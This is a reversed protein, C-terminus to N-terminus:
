KKQGNNSSCLRQLKEGTVAILTLAADPYKKICRLREKHTTQTDGICYIFEKYKSLQQKGGSPLKLTRQLLNAAIDGLVQSQEPTIYKLLTQSQKQSINKFAAIFHIHRKLRDM